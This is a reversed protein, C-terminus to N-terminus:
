YEGVIQKDNPDMLRGWTTPSVSLAVGRVSGDMLAVNISGGHLAQAWYWVPAGAKSSRDRIFTTNNQTYTLHTWGYWPQAWHFGPSRDCTGNQYGSPTNWFTGCPRTPNDSYYSFGSKEVFAVTNSAGDPIEEFKYKSKFGTTIGVPDTPISQAVSGFLGVNGGYSCFGTGPFAERAVSDAPCQYVTIPNGVVTWSAYTERGKQYLNDQEVFPLVWFLVSGRTNGKWYDHGPLSGSQLSYNQAALTIQRINNSCAVRSASERVKQVAPLLLGILIAIIAIVVLLEILSFAFRLRRPVLVTRQFHSRHPPEGARVPEIDPPHCLGEFLRPSTSDRRTTPPDLAIERRSKLLNREPSGRDLKRPRIPPILWSYGRRRDVREAIPDGDDLLQIPRGGFDPVKQKWDIGLVNRAPAAEDFM